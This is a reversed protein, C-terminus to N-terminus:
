SQPAEPKMKSVLTNVVTWCTLFTAPVHTVKEGIHKSAPAGYWLWNLLTTESLYTCTTERQGGDWIMDLGSFIWRDTSTSALAECLVLSPPFM